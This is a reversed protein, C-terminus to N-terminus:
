QQPEIGLSKYCDSFFKETRVAGPIRANNRAEPHVDQLNDQYHQELKQAFEEFKGQEAAYALVSLANIDQGVYDTVIKAARKKANERSDKPLKGIIKNDIFTTRKKESVLFSAELSM